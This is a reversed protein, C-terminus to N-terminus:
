ILIVTRSVEGKRMSADVFEGDMIGHVYSDGVFTYEPKSYREMIKGLPRLILPVRGGNLVWIEDGQQADEPALGLYGKKSIFFKRGSALFGVHSLFVRIIPEGYRRTQGPVDRYKDHLLVEWWWTDHLARTDKDAKEPPVSPDRPFKANMCLTRWYANFVTSGSVYPQEPEKDINAMERWNQLVNPTMQHSKFAMVTGFEAIEDCLLGKLCLTTPSAHEVYVQSNQHCANFLKTLSQRESLGHLRWFELPRHDSWDPVWSPLGHDIPKAGSRAASRSKPLVHSLVDLNGSRKICEVTALSFTDAVSREYDIIYKPIDDTLGLVGFVKDRPNTAERHRFKSAIELFESRGSKKKLEIMDVLRVLSTSIDIEMDGVGYKGEINFMDCCNSSIFHRRFSEIIGEIEGNQFIFSGCLYILSKALAAEQLTWIRTFWTNKLWMLIDLTPAEFDEETGTHKTSDWHLDPNTGFHEIAHLAQLQGNEPGLWVIVHEARGYIADMMRVQHSREPQDEQNICVADVWLRRIEKESRIHRLAGELNRTVQLEQGRIEIPLKNKPDGWVYSLAEFKDQTTEISLDCRIRDRFTGPQLLLIRIQGKEADLPTYITTSSM